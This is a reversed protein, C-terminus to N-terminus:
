IEQKAADIPQWSTLIDLMEDMGAVFDLTPTSYTINLTWLGDLRRWYRGTQQATLSWQKHTYSLVQVWFQTELPRDGAPGDDVLCDILQCDELEVLSAQTAVQSWDSTSLGPTFPHATIVINPRFGYRDDPAYAVFQTHHPPPAIIQWDDPLYISFGSPDEIFM